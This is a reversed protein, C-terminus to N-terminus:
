GRNLGASMEIIATRAGGSTMYSAPGGGIKVVDLVKTVAHWSLITFVNRKLHRSPAAVVFLAGGPIPYPHGKPFWHAPFSPGIIEHWRVSEPTPQRPAPRTPDAPDHLQDAPITRIETTNM